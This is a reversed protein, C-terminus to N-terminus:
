LEDFLARDYLPAMHQWDYAAVAAALAQATARTAVPEALSPALLPLLLPPLLLPDPEPLVPNTGVVPAEPVSLSVAPLLVPLELPSAVLVPSTVVPPVLLPSLLVLPLSM